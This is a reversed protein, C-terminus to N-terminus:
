NVRIIEEVVEGNEHVVIKLLGTKEDKVLEFQLDRGKVFFLNETEPYINVKFEGAQLNLLGNEISITVSGIRSSEYKGLYKSLIEDPLEIETKPTKYVMPQHDYSLIRSMKWNDNEHKWIHTFKAKGDLREKKDNEKIYFIHKGTLIAGYNDLPFIELSGEVVERRLRWNENACIGNEISEVFNDLTSTLGSKDHYFELDDTLFAKMGILDCSNYAEWFLSDSYLVKKSQTQFDLQKKLLSYKYESNVIFNGGKIILVNNKNKWTHNGLYTKLTDINNNKLDLVQIENNVMSVKLSKETGEVIGVYQGEVDKAKIDFSISKEFKKKLIQWDIKDTFYTVELVGTTNILCVIYLDEIPFYQIQSLFGPIYGSHGIEVNGFNSFHVLGKAYNLKTGNALEIPEILKHYSEKSLIGDNHLAKMWILLDSTTSCLSGASYPWKQNIYAKQQLGNKSFAYGNVKNKIIRSMSCYSTNEMGLPVFFTDTLYDEYTKGTIKEIILGLFFYGSNNYHFAEQPEFQFKEKEVLRVLTDRPLDQVSLTWFDSIETYNAIGSTHELLNKITIKREKTDFDLYNTFDDDLSLKGQEALKLIAVSTFHKTVSGIEFVADPTIPISLELNAYGYNKDLLIKNKHSVLISAGAIKNKLIADTFLSDSIRELPKPEQIAISKNSGISVLIVLCLAVLKKM